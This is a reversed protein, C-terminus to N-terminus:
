LFLALCTFPSFSSSSHFFPIFNIVLCQLFLVCFIYLLFLLFLLFFCFIFHFRLLDCHSSTYFHIKIYKQANWALGSDYLLRAILLWLFLSHFFSSYSCSLNEFFSLRTPCQQSDWFFLLSIHTTVRVSNVTMEFDCVCTVLFVCLFHEQHINRTRRSRWHQGFHMGSWRTVDRREVCRVVRPEINGCGCLRVDLRVNIQHEHQIRDQVHTQLQVEETHMDIRKENEM